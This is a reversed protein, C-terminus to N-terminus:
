AEDRAAIGLQMMIKLYDRRLPIKNAKGIAVLRSVLVDSVCVVVVYREMRGGCQKAKELGSSKKEVRRVAFSM